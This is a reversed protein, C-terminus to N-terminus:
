PFLCKGAGEARRFLMRGQLLVSARERNDGLCRKGKSAVRLDKGGADKVTGTVSRFVRVRPLFTEKFSDDSLALGGM